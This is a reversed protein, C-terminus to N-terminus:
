VRWRWNLPAASASSTLSTKQVAAGAANRGAESSTPIISPARKVYLLGIGKSAHLKHASLSLFDLGLEKVDVKLKGPTQVADSHFLVGKSRCIAAIEEIPFSHRNRQEGVDHLRHGHRPPDIKGSFAPRPQRRTRCPSVGVHEWRTSCEAFELEAIEAFAVTVLDRKERDFGVAAEVQM